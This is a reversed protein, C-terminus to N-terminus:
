IRMRGIRASSLRNRSSPSRCSESSLTCLRKREGLAAEAPCLQPVQGLDVAAIVHGQDGFIGTFRNAAQDRDSAEDAGIGSAASAAM